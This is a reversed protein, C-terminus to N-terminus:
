FSHHTVAIGEHNRQHKGPRKPLLSPRCLEGFGAVAYYALAHNVAVLLRAHDDFGLAATAVDFEIGCPFNVVVNKPHKAPNSKQDHHM